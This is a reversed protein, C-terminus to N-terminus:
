PAARVSWPAPSITRTGLDAWSLGLLLALWLLGTIAALRLLASGRGLHMFFLAILLAKACSIGMNAATNWAGMPIYSSATTLALLAMLSLWTLLYSM